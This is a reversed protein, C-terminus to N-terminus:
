ATSKAILRERNSSTAGRGSREVIEAAVRRGQRIAHSVGSNDPYIQAMSALYLGQLPAAMPPILKSYNTVFIPQAWRARWVHADVVWQRRFGPFMRHIYPLTYEFVQQDNMRYFESEPSLYKSLYVIHRGNYSSPPEFNTHEIVGIFPFTPDNVSLWYTDSLSRDLVLMLCVNALYQIRRLSDCYHAPGHPEILDAILPLAMTAIVFDADVLGHPTHVGAVRGHRIDFGTAPQSTNIKGGAQEIREAIRRALTAFGGKFYMLNESGDRQRRSGGHSNLTNWIYAASVSDAYNGFKGRLLPEWVVEFARRGCLSLLWDAAALSELHRWDRIRRSYVALWGLRLRDILPLASFRLLDWPTSLRFIQNAFYMGSRSPRIVIRDELGLERILGSVSPDHDLWHHYFKELPQGDVSFSGALGGLSSEAELVTVRIGRLSLEYAASLGGFGGGIVVARPSIRATM